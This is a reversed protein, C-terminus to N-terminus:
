NREISMENYIMRQAYEQIYAKLISLQEEKPEIELESQPQLTYCSSVNEGDYQIVSLSDIYTYIGASYYLAFAPSEHDFINNGFSVFPKTYGIRSMVSPLIDAQQMIRGDRKRFTTDSPQYFVIPIRHRDVPSIYDSTVDPEFSYPVTHDAVLVFLTNDFWQSNRVSDFFMKLSYDAYRLANLEQRKESFLHRYEEPVVYPHHSSITFITAFFPEEYSDLKQKTYQLFKDDFIGWDSDYNGAKEHEELFENMGYYADFGIAECYKDFGMTGNFAGHFFATAYGEERLLLPFADVLNTAYKSSIITEDMLQPLSSLIAPVAQISKTGNAFANTCAYGHEIISDLFPTYGPESSHLSGVSRQSFGELMIIVVNQKIFSQNDGKYYRVVPYLREAQEPPFYEHLQLGSKGITRIVTFPTNLTLPAYRSETYGMADVVNLAKVGLGRYLFFSGTSVFVAVCFCVIWSGRFSPISYSIYRPFLLLLLAYLAVFFLTHYWYDRLYQPLLNVTDSSFLMGTVYDAGSRANQFSFYGTDIVNLLIGLMNVFIIVQRLINQYKQNEVFSFPLFHFIYFLVNIFFIASFDYRLGYFFSKLIEGGDLPKFSAVNCLLFYARCLTYVLLLCGIRRLLLTCNSFFIRM